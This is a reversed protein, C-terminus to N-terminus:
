RGAVPRAPRRKRSRQRLSHAESRLRLGEADVQAQREAHARQAASTLIAAIPIHSPCVLECCRCGTCLEATAPTQADVHEMWAVLDSVALEQPCALVCRQCRVCAQPARPENFSEIYIATTALTVPTQLSAPRGMMAGGSTVKSHQEDVAVGALEVAEAFSAGLVADVVTPVLEVGHVTLRRTDPLRGATALVGLAAVTAVNLVLVGHDGPYAGPALKTGTILRYLNREDGSPYGELWLPDLPNTERECLKILNAIAPASSRKAAIKLSNPSLGRCLAAIGAQVREPDHAILEADARLGPECEVANIVVTVGARANLTAIKRWTPFGAGGMGKLGGRKVMQVLQQFPNVNVAPSTDEPAEAWGAGSPRPVMAICDVPCPALCLECGTCEAPLITHMLRPGGAIADVPCAPLCLACGICRAEDILAILDGAVPTLDKALPRREVGLLEALEVITAEGGPPCRDIDATGAAIAQAYPACGPYGCQACQTQPLLANIRESLADADHPCMRALARLLYMLAAALAGVIIAALWTM